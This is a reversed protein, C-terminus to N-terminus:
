QADPITKRTSNARDCRGQKINTLIGDRRLAAAIDRVTSAAGGFPEVYVRHAPMHSIIWPALLWKGGHWRLVPRSPTSIFADRLEAADTMGAEARNGTVVLMYGYGARSAADDPALEVARRYHTLAAAFSPSSM